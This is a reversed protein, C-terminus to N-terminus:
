PEVDGLVALSLSWSSASIMERWSMGAGMGMGSAAVTAALESKFISCCHLSSHSVTSLFRSGHSRATTKLRKDLEDSTVEDSIM